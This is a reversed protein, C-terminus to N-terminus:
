FINFIIYDRSKAQEPHIILCYYEGYCVMKDFTGSMWSEIILPYDGPSSGILQLSNIRFVLIRVKGAAMSSTKNTTAAGKNPCDRARFPTGDEGPL